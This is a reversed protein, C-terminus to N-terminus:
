WHLLAGPRRHLAAAAVRGNDALTTATTIGVPAITSPLGIKQLPPFPPSLTNHIPFYSLFQKFVVAPNLLVQLYSVFIFGFFKM